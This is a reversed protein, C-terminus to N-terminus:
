PESLAEEFFVRRKKLSGLGKKRMLLWKTPVVGGVAFNSRSALAGDPHSFLLNTGCLQSHLKELKPTCSVHDHPSLLRMCASRTLVRGLLYHFDLGTNEQFVCLALKVIFFDAGWGWMEFNHADRNLRADKFFSRKKLFNNCEGTAQLWCSQSTPAPTLRSAKNPLTRKELFCRYSFNGADRQPFIHFAM